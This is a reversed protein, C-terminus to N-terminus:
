WTTAMEQALTEHRRTTSSAQEPHPHSLSDDENARQNRGFANRYTEPATRSYGQILPNKLYDDLRSLASLIRNETRSFLQSLKKTVKGEIEESVQPIHNEQSRPVNSNQAMNSRPRQECNKKNLAAMKKTIGLTSM